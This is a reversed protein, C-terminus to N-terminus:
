VVEVVRVQDGKIELVCARAPGGRAHNCDAASGPNVLLMGYAYEHLAVHTHGFLAVDAGNEKARLALAMLNACRHGHTLYLRKGGAECILDDPLLSMLDNNGRVAYLPPRNPMAELQLRLFEADSAVDGLFCAADIYGMAELLALLSRHDGHSDSFVGVRTM